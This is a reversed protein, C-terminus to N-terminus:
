EPAGEKPGFLWVPVLEPLGTVNDQLAGFHTALILVLLGQGHAMDVAM